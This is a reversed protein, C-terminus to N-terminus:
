EVDVRKAKVVKVTREDVVEQLHNKVIDKTQDFWFLSLAHLSPGKHLILTPYVVDFASIRDSTVIFMHDGMDYVDRVKGRKPLPDGNFMDSARLVEVDGLGLPSKVISSDKM